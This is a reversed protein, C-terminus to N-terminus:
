TTEGGKHHNTKKALLMLIDRLVVLEDQPLNHLLIIIANLVAEKDESFLSCEFNFLDKPTINLIDCLKDCKKLSIRAKGTEILSLSCPVLDLKEALERQSLGKLERLEKIHKGLQKFNNM